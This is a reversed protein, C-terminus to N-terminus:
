SYIKCLNRPFLLITSLLNYSIHTHCTFYQNFKNKPAAGAGNCVSVNSKPGGDRGAAGALDKAGAGLGLGAGTCSAWGVGM